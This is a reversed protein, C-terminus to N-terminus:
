FHGAESITRSINTYPDQTYLIIMHFTIIVQCMLCLKIKSFCHFSPSCSVVELHIIINSKTYTLGHWKNANQNGSILKWRWLSWLRNYKYQAASEGDETQQRLTIKVDHQNECYPYLQRQIHINPTAMYTPMSCVLQHCHKITVRVLGSRIHTAHLSSLDDTIRLNVAKITTGM